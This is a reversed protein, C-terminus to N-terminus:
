FKGHLTILYTFNITKVINQNNEVPLSRRKNIITVVHLCFIGSDSFIHLYTANLKIHYKLYRCVLMKM